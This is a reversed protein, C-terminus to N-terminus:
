SGDPYGGRHLVMPYHPLTQPPPLRARWTGEPPTLTTLLRGSAVLPTLVERLAQTRPAWEGDLERLRAAHADRARVGFPTLRVVKFRSGEPDPGVQGLGGRDLVGLAMQQAEQSVGARAPLDRVQAGRDDLLRLLNERFPLGARTGQEAELTYAYLVRALLAGLPLASVDEDRQPAPGAPKPTLFANGPGTVPLCDPLAPDLGAAMPVLAERLGGVEPFREEWRRDIEAPLPAIIEGARRGADTLALVWSARDTHPREIRIYGWREMGDLNTRLRSERELDLVTMPDSGALHRLCNWWM